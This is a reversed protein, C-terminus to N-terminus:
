VHARGIEGAIQLSDTATDWYLGNANPVTYSAQYLKKGANEAYGAPWLVRETNKINLFLRSYMGGSTPMTIILDTGSKAFTPFLGNSIYFSIGLKESTSNTIYEMFKGSSPVGSFNTLLNINLYAKTKDVSDVLLTNSSLNWLLSSGNPITYSDSFTSKGSNETFGYMWLEAVKKGDRGFANLRTYANKGKPFSVKISYDQLISISPMIGNTFFVDYSSPTAMNVAQFQERMANGATGRLKGDAGLRMDVLESPVTGNGANAILNDIRSGTDTIDIGKQSLDSLISAITMNTDYNPVLDKLDYAVAGATVSIITQRDSPFIYSDIKIELFYLGTPIAKDINFTVTSGDVITTTTFVINNNLVLNVYATKKDFVDIERSKEDALNYAFTSGFDGQKVQNGGSIQNLNLTNFYFM